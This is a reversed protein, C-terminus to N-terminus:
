IITKNEIIYDKIKNKIYEKNDVLIKYEESDKLNVCNEAIKDKEYEDFYFYNYNILQEILKEEYFQIVVEQLLSCM